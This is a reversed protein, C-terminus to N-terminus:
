LDLMASCANSALHRNEVFLRGKLIIKWPASTKCFWGVSSVWIFSNATMRTEFKWIFCKGRRKCEIQWALHYLQIHDHTQILHARATVQALSRLGKSTFWFGVDVALVVAEIALVNNGTKPVWRHLLDEDKLPPGLALSLLCFLLRQQLFM